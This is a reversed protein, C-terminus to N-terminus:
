PGKWGQRFPTEPDAGLLAPDIAAGDWARFVRRANSSLWEMQRLSENLRDRFYIEDALTLTRGFARMLEDILHVSRNMFARLESATQSLQDHATALRDESRNYDSMSTTSPDM